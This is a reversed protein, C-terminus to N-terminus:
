REVVLLLKNITDFPYVVRYHYVLQSYNSDTSLDLLPPDHFPTILIARLSHHSYLKYFLTYNLM